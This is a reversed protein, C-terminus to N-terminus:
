SITHCTRFTRAVIVMGQHILVTTPFYATYALTSKGLRSGCYVTMDLRALLQSACADGYWQIDQRQLYSPLKGTYNVNQKDEEEM